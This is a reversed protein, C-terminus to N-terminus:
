TLFFLCISVALGSMENFNSIEGTKNKRSKADKGESICWSVGFVFVFVCQSKCLLEVGKALSTPLPFSASEVKRKNKPKGLSPIFDYIHAQLHHISQPTSSM